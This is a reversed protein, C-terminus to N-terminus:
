LSLATSSAQDHAGRRIAARESARVFTDPIISRSACRCNIATGPLQWEQDVKSWLGKTVDFRRRERGWRVHEPRPVKGAHSHQWEAEVIGLDERRASELVAKAKSSQDRAILAARRFTVGYRQRISKSLERQAGGAMAAKTVLREVQQHFQRPISRILAVNEGVIARHAAVMRPSAQFRVTFGSKRLLRKFAADFSRRTRQAFLQAVEVAMRDFRQEWRVGWEAFARRLGVEPEADFAAGATVQHTGGLSSSPAVVAPASYHQHVLDVMEQAMGRALLQLRRRYWARVDAAPHIEKLVLSAM